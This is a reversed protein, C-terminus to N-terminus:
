IVKFLSNFLYILFEMTRARNSTDMCVIIDNIVIKKGSNSVHIFNMSCMLCCHFLLLFFGEVYWTCGISLSFLNLHLEYRLETLLILPKVIFIPILSYVCQLAVLSIPSIALISFAVCLSSLQKSVENYLLIQLNCM